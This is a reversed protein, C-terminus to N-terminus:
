EVELIQQEPRGQDGSTHENKKSKTYTRLYKVKAGCDRHAHARNRRYPYSENWFGRSDIAATDRIRLHCIDNKWEQARNYIM